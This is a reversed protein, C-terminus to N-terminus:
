DRFDRVVIRIDAKSGLVSMRHRTSCTQFTCDRVNPAAKNQGREMSTITLIRDAIVPGFFLLLLRLQSPFYSLAAGSLVAGDGCRVPSKMTWRMTIWSGYPFSM